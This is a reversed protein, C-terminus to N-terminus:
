YTTADPVGALLAGLDAFVDQHEVLASVSGGVRLRGAAFATAPSLRGQSIAAATEYDSVLEVDAAGAGPEFTVRGGALRVTYEVDGDPGGTVRQHISLAAGTTRATATASEMRELWDRSLFRV